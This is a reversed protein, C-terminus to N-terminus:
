KLAATIDKLADAVSASIIGGLDVAKATAILPVTLSYYVGSEPDNLAITVTNGNADIQRSTVALNAM